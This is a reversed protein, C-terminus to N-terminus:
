REPTWTTTTPPAAKTAATNTTNGARYRPGARYTSTTVSTPRSISHPVPRCAPVPPGYGWRAETPRGCTRRRFGRATTDACLRGRQSPELGPVHEHESEHTGRGTRIRLNSEDPRGAPWEGREDAHEPYRRIQDGMRTDTRTSVYLDGTSNVPEGTNPITSLWAGFAFRAPSTAEPSTPGVPYVSASGAEEPSVLEYARCDPLYNSATEQRITSNPCQPAYFGFDQDESAVTGYTNEAVVRFHYTAGVQLNTLKLTVTQIGYSAGIDKSPIPEVTGYNMSTGYEFHYTTDAGRPNIQAHLEASTATVHSTSTAGIEPRDATTFTLDQGYTTGLPNKTVLRFHYTTHPQLGSLAAPAISQPGSGSGNAQETTSHGYAESTGYEFHYSTASGDGVYSGNLEASENTVNSAPETSTGIVFRPTVTQDAGHATGASNIAVLRFHYTTESVLGTLKATVDAESGFPPGPECPVSGAEYAESTGYEFHCGTIEGRGGDAIHGTLTATTHGVPSAQGTTAYPALGSFVAVDNAGTNAVYVNDSPADVTLGRANSLKGNGFTELPTCAHAANRKCIASSRGRNTSISTTPCRIPISAPSRDPLSVMSTKKPNPSSQSTHSKRPAAGSSANRRTSPSERNPSATEPPLIFEGIPSGSQSYRALKSPYETSMVALSGNSTVAIGNIGETRVLQGEVSWNTILNGSSDFKSVIGLWLQRRRLCGGGLARRFQRGRHLDSHQPLWPEIDRQNRRGPMRRCSPDCVNQQPEPAHALAQTENVGKGFILILHGTSDFKEVRHNATDTVYFDHSSQDVAVDNPGSLPYPNSPTSSAAGFYTTFAHPSFAARAHAAGLLLTGVAALLIALTFVARKSPSDRCPLLLPASASPGQGPPPYGGSTSPAARAPAGILWDPDPKVPGQALSLAPLRRPPCVTAIPKERPSQHNRSRPLRGPQRGKRWGCLLFPRVCVQTISAISTTPSRMLTIAAAFSALYGGKLAAARM